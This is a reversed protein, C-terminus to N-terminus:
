TPLSDGPPTYTSTFHWTSAVARRALPRCTHRRYRAGARAPTADDAHHKATDQQGQKCRSGPRLRRVSAQTGSPRGRPEGVDDIPDARRDNRDARELRSTLWLEPKLAGPESNAIASKDRGVREDDRAPKLGALIRLFQDHHQRRALWGLLDHSPGAHQPRLRALDPM